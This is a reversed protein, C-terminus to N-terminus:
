LLDFIKLVGAVFDRGLGLKKATDKVSLGSNYTDIIERKHRQIKELSKSVFIDQRSEEFKRAYQSKRFHQINEQQTVWELNEACNNSKNFDKHNVQECNRPNPIFAKAVLIHIYMHKYKNGSKDSLGVQHYGNPKIHQKLIKGYQKHNWVYRDLSRVQGLNSVQYIGEFGEIDRWEESVGM